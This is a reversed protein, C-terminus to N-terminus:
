MEGSKGIVVLPELNEKYGVQGKHNPGEHSPQYGKKSISQYLEDLRHLRNIVEKEEWGWEQTYIRFYSTDEWDQGCLFRKEFSPKVHYDDFNILDESRPWNGGKTQALGGEHPSSIPTQKKDHYFYSIDNAPIEITDYPNPPKDYFFKNLKKNKFTHIAMSEHESVIRYKVFDIFSKFVEICGENRFIEFARQARYTLM